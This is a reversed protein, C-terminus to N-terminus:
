ESLSLTRLDQGPRLEKEYSDHQLAVHMGAREYLRTAGTLNQSDVGLGITHHGRRYFEGFAHLLLAMGLGRRRWPRRVALQNVWGMHLDEFIHCLAAGALKDGDFTLFWLTPDFGRSNLRWSSWQEFTVPTHGWHDQFAEEIMEFVAHEEQGAYLTRVRIGAPWQPAPPAKDLEIEM